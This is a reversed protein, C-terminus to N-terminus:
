RSVCAAITMRAKHMYKPLAIVKDDDLSIHKVRADVLAHALHEACVRTEAMSCCIFRM